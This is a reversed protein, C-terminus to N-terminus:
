HVVAAPAPKAPADAVLRLLTRVERPSRVRLASRSDGSGVHICVADSPLAAFLDDDTTDDGLAVLLAHPNRALIPEVVLGRNVGHMRLEIVKHGSLIHVPTNSLLETLHVRLENAQLPGFEADAMRYHWALGTAKEEVLTGPTRDAYDRLIALVKEKWPAPPGEDLIQGPQGPPRLWSGHEAHLYIPLKGLWRELTDRPQGSVVHVETGPRAALRTLLQLLEGDPRALDPTDAIPVLTGDYDVLLVLREAARMREVLERM